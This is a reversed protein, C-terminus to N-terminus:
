MEEKCGNTGLFERKENLLYFFIRSFKAFWFNLSSCIDIANSKSLYPPKFYRVLNRTTLTLLVLTKNSKVLNCRKM